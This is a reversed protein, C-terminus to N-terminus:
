ADVAGLHDDPKSAAIREAEICSQCPWKVWEGAVKLPQWGSGFCRPCDPRIIRSM